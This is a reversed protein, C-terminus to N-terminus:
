IAAIVQYAAISLLANSRASLKLLIFFGIVLDRPSFPILVVHGFSRVFM